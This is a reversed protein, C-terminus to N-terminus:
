LIVLDAYKRDFTRRFRRDDDEDDTGEHLTPVGLSDRSVVIPGVDPSILVYPGQSQGMGHNLAAEWALALGIVADTAINRDEWKYYLLQNILDKIYPFQILQEQIAAQLHMILDTKETGGALNYGSVDIGYPENQLTDLAMDGGMATSDILVPCNHYRQHIEKIHGFQKPWHTGPSLLEFFVLQCSEGKNKALKLVSICTQDRKRALDVGMVYKLHKDRHRIPRTEIGSDTEILTWEMDPDLGRMRGEADIGMLHAYDQHRYCAQVSVTDFISTSEAFEGYVNQQRQVDTMREMTARVRDHDIHPNDFTEGRQSYRSMDCILRGNEDFRNRGAICLNSFWNLGNPSSCMELDGAQDVLRMRIVGDLIEQGEPEFGAEDWTLFNFTKGLLFRAGKATSRAWVESVIKQKGVAQNGIILKPFPTGQYDIVFKSFKPSNKALALAYNHGILAQDLSLAVNVAVYPKLRGSTDFKYKEPRIQYFARHLLSIGITQTKGWRNAAHLTSETAHPKSIRFEPKVHPDGARRLWAVQGPHPDFDLFDRAFSVPDNRGLLLSDEFTKKAIM